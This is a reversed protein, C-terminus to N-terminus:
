RRVRGRWMKSNTNIGKKEEERIEDGKTNNGRRENGGKGKRAQLTTTLYVTSVNYNKSWPGTVSFAPVRM